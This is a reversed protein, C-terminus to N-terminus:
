WKVAARVSRLSTRSWGGVWGCMQKGLGLSMFCVRLVENERKGVCATATQTYYMLMYCVCVCVCRKLVQLLICSIFRVAVRGGRNCMRVLIIDTRQGAAMNGGRWQKKKTKGRLRETCFHCTREGRNTEWLEIHRRWSLSWRRWGWGLSRLSSDSCGPSCSSLEVGWQNQDTM